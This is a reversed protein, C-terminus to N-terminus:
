NTDRRSNVLSIMRFGSYGLLVGVANLIVDDVDASRGFIFQLIEIILPIAVAIILMPRWGGLKAFLRPVCVGFPAFFLVNGILNLWSAGGGTRVYYLITRFPMLNVDAGAWLPPRYFTLAIIGGVYMAFIVAVIEYKFDLKGGTMRIFVVRSVIYVLAAVLALGIGLSLANPIM